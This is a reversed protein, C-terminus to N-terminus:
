EVKKLNVEHDLKEEQLVVIREVHAGEQVLKVHAGEHAPKVHALKVEQLNVHAGEQVLKVHALKVEQLKVDAGVHAKELRPVNLCIYFLL